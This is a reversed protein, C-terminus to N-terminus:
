GAKNVQQKYCRGYDKSKSKEPASVRCLLSLFSLHIM